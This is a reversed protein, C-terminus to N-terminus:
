FSACHNTCSLKGKNNAQLSIFTVYIVCERRWACASLMYRLLLSQDRLVALWTIDTSALRFGGCECSLDHRDIGLALRNKSKAWSPQRSNGRGHM